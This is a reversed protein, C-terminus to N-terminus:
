RGRGVVSGATQQLRNGFGGLPGEGTNPINLRLLQSLQGSKVQLNFSYSQRVVFPVWSFSMVWCGLDRRINLSTTAVQNRILDYGTRGDVSWKPTVDLGFQANVTARQSTVTKRPKRVSYSFDFSLSWPIRAELYGPAGSLARGDPASARQSGGGRSRGSRPQGSRSPARRNQPRGATRVGSSGGGGEFSGSVNLRFQTLRAPTFPSEAAMYRDVVQYTRDEGTGTGRLAYPSFTMSSRIRFDQISTRARLRIDSLNLSDATFNYSSSLDVDLLKLTEETRRGTTDV